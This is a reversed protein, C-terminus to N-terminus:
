KTLADDGHHEEWEDTKLCYNSNFKAAFKM